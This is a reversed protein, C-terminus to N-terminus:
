PETRDCQQHADASAGGTLASVLGFVSAEKTHFLLMWLMSASFGAIMGSVAATRTLKKSYLAGVYMPLFAAGCLGFFLGTAIAIAGNWIQPLM